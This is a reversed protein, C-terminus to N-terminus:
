ALFLLSIVMFNHNELLENNIGAPAAKHAVTDNTYLQLKGRRLLIQPHL